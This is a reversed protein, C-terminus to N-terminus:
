TKFVIVSLKNLLPYGTQSLSELVFMAICVSCICVMFIRLVPVFLDSCASCVWILNSQDPNVSDTPITSDADKPNMVLNCFWAINKKLVNHYKNKTNRNKGLSLKGKEEM